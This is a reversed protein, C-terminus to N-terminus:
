APPAGAVIGELVAEDPPELSGAPAGIIREIADYAAAVGRRITALAARPDPAEILTRANRTGYFESIATVAAASEDPDAVHFVGQEVGERIIRALLPVTRAANRTQIKHRIIINEDRFLVRMVEHLLDRRSLRWRRMAALLRNLKVLAPVGAEAVGPEVAACAETTLQEVVADLVQEKSTFYHYFTGKAVGLRDIIASVTTGDYGHARFLGWAAELIEARRVHHEKLVRSM